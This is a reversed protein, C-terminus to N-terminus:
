GSIITADPYIVTKPRSSSRSSMSLSLSIPGVRGLFMTLCLVLMSLNPLDDTIGATVGVTGFASVSEYLADISRVQGGLQGLIVVTAVIIAAIATASIALARYVTERTIRRKGITPHNYGRLTCVVTTILVVMTTTKVGGGTSGPSAGIFMLVCFFLKTFGSAAGLDVSAFGASRACVSQFFANSIKDGFSMGYLTGNWESALFFLTGIVLLAASAVCVIKTHMMLNRIKGGDKIVNIIDYFVVFGLGGLIIISSLVMLVYPESNLSVVSNGRGLVDFGANCYASIATFVSSWVGKLFGYRPIFEFSLLVAGVGECILTVGAAVKLIGRTGGMDLYGTSEQAIRLSRLGLRQRLSLTLSTVITMVGLGGTQILLIIVIQGFLSWHTATDFPTLGTVCTASTAVFLAKIFGTPEEGAKVSFPLLLLLTGTIIIVAFSMPILKHAPISELKRGIFRKARRIRQKTVRLHKKLKESFKPKENEM